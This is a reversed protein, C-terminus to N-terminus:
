TKKPPGPPSFPSRYFCGYPNTQQKPKQLMQDICRFSSQLMHFGLNLDICIRYIYIQIGHMCM